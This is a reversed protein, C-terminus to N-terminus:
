MSSLSATKRKMLIENQKKNTTLLNLSVNESNHKSNLGVKPISHIKTIIM